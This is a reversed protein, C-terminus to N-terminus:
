EVVVHDNSILHWNGESILQYTKVQDLFSDANTTAAFQPLVLSYAGLHRVIAWAADAESHFARGPHTHIQAVVGSRTEGLKAMLASMGEPPIIFRDKKCIQIPEYAQRVQADASATNRGLWAVMREQGVAGGAKLRDLTELLITRPISLAM